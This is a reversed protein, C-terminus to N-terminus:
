QNEIVFTSISKKFEAESSPFENSLTAATITYLINNNLLQYSLNTSKANINLASYTASYKNWYTPINDLKTEGSDLLKIDPFKEKMGTITAANWEDLTGGNKITAVKDNNNASIERVIVIISNNGKVAKQIVNPGDGPKIEWGEPFKIRFNYKTNRYLSGTIESYNSSKDTKNLLINLEGSNLLNPIQGIFVLILLIPYIIIFIKWLVKKRGYVAASIVNFKTFIYALFYAIIYPVFFFPLLAGILIGVGDATFKYSALLLMSYFLTLAVELFVLIKEYTKM